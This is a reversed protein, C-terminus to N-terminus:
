ADADHGGAAHNIMAPLSDPVFVRAGLAAAIRGASWGDLTHGHRNFM